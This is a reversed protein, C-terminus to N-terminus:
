ITYQRNYFAETPARKRAEEEFRREREAQREAFGQMAKKRLEPNSAVRLFKDFCM